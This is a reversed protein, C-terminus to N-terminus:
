QLWLTALAGATIPLAYALRVTDTCGLVLAPHPRLGASMWFTVLNQLNLTTELMRGRVLVLILAAIGGLIAAALAAIVTTQPGLWAGFAALLKVDGAGLGRLLFLPLFLFLGVVWGASAMALGDWGAIVTHFLLGTAAASFTLVNPIRRTRLDIACAILGVIAIVIYPANM